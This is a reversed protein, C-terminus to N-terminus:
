RVPNRPFKAFPLRAGKYIYKDARIASPASMRGSGDAAFASAGAAAIIDDEDIGDGSIGVAGVLKGGKYLPQGGAFITIGNPLYV